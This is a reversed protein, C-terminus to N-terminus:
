RSISSTRVYEILSNLVPSRADIGKQAAMRGQKQTIELLAEMISFYDLESASSSILAKIADGAARTIDCYDGRSWYCTLNLKRIAECVRETEHRRHAESMANTAICNNLQNTSARDICTSHPALLEGSANEERSWGHVLSADADLGRDLDDEPEVIIAEVDEYGSSATRNAMDHLNDESTNVFFPEEDPNIIDSSDAAGWGIIKGM